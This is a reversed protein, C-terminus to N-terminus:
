IKLIGDIVCVQFSFYHLQQSVRFIGVEPMMSSVEGTLNFFDARHGHCGDSDRSIGKFFMPLLSQPHWWDAPKRSRSSTETQQIFGCMSPKWKPLTLFQAPNPPEPMYDWGEPPLSWSSWLELGAQAFLEHSGIEFIGLVCMCVCMCVCVCVCVCVCLSSDPSLHSLVLRALMLGQSWVWYQLIAIIIIRVYFSLSFIGDWLQNALVFGLSSLWSNTMHCSHLMFLMPQLVTHSQAMGSSTNIRTDFLILLM